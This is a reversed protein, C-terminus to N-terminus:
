GKSSGHSCNWISLNRFYSDIIILKINKICYIFSFKSESCDNSTWNPFCKCLDYQGCMGHSSCANPCEANTLSFIVLFTALFTIFNNAM